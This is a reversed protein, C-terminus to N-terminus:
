TLNHATVFITYLYIFYSLLLTYARFKWSPIGLFVKSCLMGLVKNILVVKSNAM